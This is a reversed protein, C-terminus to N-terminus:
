YKTICYRALHSNKTSISMLMEERADIENKRTNAEILTGGFNGNMPCSTYTLNSNM